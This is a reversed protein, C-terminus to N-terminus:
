GDIDKFLYNKRKKSRRIKALKRIRARNAKNWETSKAIERKRNAYYKARRLLSQGEKRCPICINHTYVNGNKSDRCTWFKIVDETIQCKSCRRVVKGGILIAM